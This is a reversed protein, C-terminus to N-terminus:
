IRRLFHLQPKEPENKNKARCKGRLPSFACQLRIRGGTGVETGIARRVRDCKLARKRPLDGVMREVFKIASYVGCKFVYAIMEGMENGSTEEEIANELLREVM